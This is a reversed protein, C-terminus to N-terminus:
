KLKFLTNIILLVNNLCFHISLASIESDEVNFKYGPDYLMDGKKVFNSNNCHPINLFALSLFLLLLFSFSTLLIICKFNLM